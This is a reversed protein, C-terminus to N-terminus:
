SEKSNEEKHKILKGLWEQKRELEEKMSNLREQRQKDKEQKLKEKIKEIEDTVAKQKSKLEEMSAAEDAKDFVLKEIESEVEEKDEASITREIHPIFKKQETFSRTNMFTPSVIEIGNEHLVDLIKERLKSRATIFHKVDELLGAVKYTVSFDGLDVITVFPEGLEAEEAAKALLEQVKRRPIDYGLSVTATIFTGSSHVVKVPNTVLYLNPMTTLDREETQIEVHLLGQDSVRGFHEGIRIFDGPKFSRVARLMIGAMVNGIFTTASLAIAASLLIGILSLLQGRISDGIPLAIIIALLGAFSLLLVIIQRKIKYGEISAYKREGIFRIIILLLIFGLIVASSPILPKIVEFISNFIELLYRWCTIKWWLAM